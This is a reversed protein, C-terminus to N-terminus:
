ARLTKKTKKKKHMEDKKNFRKRWRYKETGKLKPKAKKEQGGRGKSNGFVKATKSHKHRGKKIIVNKKERKKEGRKSRERQRGKFRKKRRTAAKGGGGRKGRKACTEASGGKATMPSNANKKQKKDVTLGTKNKKEQGACGELKRSTKGRRQSKKWRSL